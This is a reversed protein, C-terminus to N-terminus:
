RGAVVGDIGDLRLSTKPIAQILTWGNKIASRYIIESSGNESTFHEQSREAYFRPYDPNAEYRKNNNKQFDLYDGLPLHIFGAVIALQVTGEEKAIVDVMSTNRLVMGQFSYPNDIEKDWGDIRIKTINLGQVLLKKDLISQIVVGFYKMHAAKWSDIAKPDYHSVGHLDIYKQTLFSSFFYQITFLNAPLTSESKGSPMGERLIKVPGKKALQIIYSLTKKVGEKDLHHEGFLYVIKSANNDKNVANIVFSDLITDDSNKIESLFQNFDALLVEPSVNYEIFKIEQQPNPFCSFLFVLSLLAIFNKM